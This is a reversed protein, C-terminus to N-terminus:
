ALLVSQHSSSILVSTERKLGQKIQLILCVQREFFDCYDDLCGHLLYTCLYCESRLDQSYRTDSKDGRHTLKWGSLDVAILM